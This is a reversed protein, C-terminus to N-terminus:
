DIPITYKRAFNQLVGTLFSQTFFFGSIWFCAPPGVEIWKQFFSLRAKLDAVYSGLPKLSPYSKGMWLDPVKGNFLSKSAAELSANMVIKGLMALKIDKLSSRVIKILGNFRQLEQTLVTNMSENYSVPYQKMIENVDYEPPFDGLISQILKDLMEEASAGKGGSSESSCLLVSDLLLNTEYIDKTIDANSHFGFVNPHILHPLTQIHDIYEQHTNLKPIKFKDDPGFKYNKDLLVNENFYDDLLTTILRRDKDDTVRGGYNCEATLYKLASFPIKDNEDLFM